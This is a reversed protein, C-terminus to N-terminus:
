REAVPRADYSRETLESEHSAKRNLAILTQRMQAHLSPVSFHLRPTNERSLKLMRIAIRCVNNTCAPDPTNQPAPASSTTVGAAVIIMFM